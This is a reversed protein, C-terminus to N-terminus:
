KMGKVLVLISKIRERKEEIGIGGETDKMQCYKSEISDNKCNVM